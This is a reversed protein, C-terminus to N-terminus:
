RRKRARVQQVHQRRAQRGQVASAVVREWARREDDRIGTEGAAALRRKLDSLTVVGEPQGKPFRARHTFVVLGSVRSGEGALAEIAKSHGSHQRSPTQFGHRQRGICQTWTREKAQGLILGAYNKTELVLLGDATLALHDVQTLGGRGDPLLLDDAVHKLHRRLVRSVAAEGVAGLLRPLFLALVFALIAAPLLYVLTGAVAGLIPATVADYLSPSQV